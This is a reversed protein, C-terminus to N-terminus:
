AIELIGQNHQQIQRLRNTAEYLDLELLQM